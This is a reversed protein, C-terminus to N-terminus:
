GLKAVLIVTTDDPKAPEATYEGEIAVDGFGADLLMATIEQPTYVVALLRHQEEQAIAGDHWLRARMELTEVVDVPDFALTRSIIELEDGDACRRRNGTEAWPQPLPPYEPEGGPWTHVILLAGDPELHARVRKLAERDLDRRGGIGFVGCIYITRYRRPVDLEHLAQAYLAPSVGLAGAQLRAQALMDESVDAGDVDFGETRLPILFRGTGCGLDLVPEGFKRIAARYYALEYPEAVNFEAWWRAMLGYHWTGSQESM